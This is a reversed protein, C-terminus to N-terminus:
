RRLKLIEGLLTPTSDWFRILKEVSEIASNWGRREEESFDLNGARIEPEEPDHTTGPIIKDKSSSFYETVIFLSHGETSVFADKVTYQDGNVLVPKGVLAKANEEQWGEPLEISWMVDTCSKDGSFARDTKFSPISHGKTRQACCQDPQDVKFPPPDPDLSNKANTQKPADKSESANQYAERTKVVVDFEQLCSYLYDALVFAPTQSSKQKDYKIILATLEERFTM